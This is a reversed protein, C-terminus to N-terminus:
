GVITSIAYFSFSSLMHCYFEPFIEISIDVRTILMMITPLPHLTVTRTASKKATKERTYFCM